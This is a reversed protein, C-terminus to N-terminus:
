SSPICEEQIVKYVTPNVAQYANIYAFVETAVLHHNNIYNQKVSNLHTNRQEVTLLASGNVHATMATLAQKVLTEDGAPATQAGVALTKLIFILAITINKMKKTETTDTYISGNLAM